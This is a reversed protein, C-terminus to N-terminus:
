RVKRTIKTELMERAQSPCRHYAVHDATTARITILMCRFLLYMVGNCTYYSQRGSTERPHSKLPFSDNSTVTIM